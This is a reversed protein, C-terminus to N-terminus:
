VVSQDVIAREYAKWIWTVRGAKMVGERREEEKWERSNSRLTAVTFSREKAARQDKPRFWSWDVRRILILCLKWCRLTKTFCWAVWVVFSFANLSTTLFCVTTHATSVLTSCVLTRPNILADWKMKFLTKSRCSLTKLEDVRKFSQRIRAEKVNGWSQSRWTFSWLLQTLPGSTNPDRTKHSKSIIPTTWPCLASNHFSWNLSIRNSISNLPQEIAIESLKSLRM